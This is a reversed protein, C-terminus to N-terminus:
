LIHTAAQSRQRPARHDPDRARSSGPEYLADHRTTRIRARARAGAAALGHV